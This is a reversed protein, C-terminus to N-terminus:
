DAHERSDGEIPSSPAQSALNDLLSDIQHARRETEDIRFSLEPVVRLNLAELLSRRLFSEAHQLAALVHRSADAPLAHDVYVSANQLDASVTVHTVTVMADELRPDTLEASVMISLEEQLLEAIRQQRRNTM